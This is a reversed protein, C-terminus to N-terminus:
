NVRGSRTRAYREADRRRHCSICHRGLANRSTNEPTFEHGHICHTKAANTTAFNGVSRLTNERATVVELHAPNVCHRVRCLHDIQLHGPIDVGKTLTWALRHARFIGARFVAFAGYGSPTITSRWLWCDGSQDVHGWFRNLQKKSLSTPYSKAMASGGGATVHHHAAPSVRSVDM